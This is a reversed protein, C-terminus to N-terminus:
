INSKSMLIKIVSNSLSRIYESYPSSIIVYDSIHNEYFKEWDAKFRKM